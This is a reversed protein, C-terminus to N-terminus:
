TTDAASGGTPPDGENLLSGLRALARSLLVRVAGENKGLDEAIESHSLGLLRSRTIVDRYQPPLRDMAAALQEVSEHHIAAEVPGHGPESPEQASCSFQTDGSTNERASHRKAARRYQRRNQIKAMAFAFLWSRFSGEGRWEFQGLRPLAQRCATQVLDWTSESQRLTRGARSRVFRHLADLHRGFLEERAALDGRRAAELLPETLPDEREM